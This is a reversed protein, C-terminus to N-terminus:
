AISIKRPKVAEHKPLWAQLVGERLHAVIKDADIGNDHSLVLEYDPEASERYLAAWASPQKWARRGVIRIQGDEATLELGDKAVGPLYVTVTFADATERIEYAPKVTAGLEPAGASESTAPIRNLSPIISQLLSM